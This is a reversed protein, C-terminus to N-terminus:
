FFSLQNSEPLAGFAGMQTLLEIASHNVKSCVSEIEDISTFDVGSQAAKYLEQAAADGIGNQAVFPARMFTEGEPLFREAHSKNFDIPLVTLGKSFFEECVELSYQMSEDIASLKEAEGKKKLLKIKRSVADPGQAMASLDLAKARISFYACYFALPKYYKFWAIRAAMMVYAAAHAKPFLYKIKKCSEIYWEPVKLTKMAAEQEESLGRGKRVKEMIDFADVDRMGRSMLYLMIDDRCGIVDEIAKGEALLDKANGLWVDTGHSFGSLRVLTSLKDPHTDTLMQRTFGTGFEPIALSTEGSAFLGLVNEDDLPIDRYNLGTLDSLMKVMSPDDHGLIDLKLLNDEMTHYNFHTTEMADSKDAPYHIPCFDTIEMDDPVIVLGGPHQGTTKKIGELAAAIRNEEAKPATIGRDEFYHKVYGYATKGALGSVTGAKYVNGAGFLEITHKHAEAQYEGSFNLDIDPVKAKGGSFGLFTEFPIDFGEKVYKAGCSCVADPMDAGCAYNEGAAFDVTKCEPCRYHAPLANVETIGALYAVFSSGVSGRSGVPYGNAESREVLLTASLYIVAYGRGVISELEDAVRKTIFEPPNEGYLLALRGFVRDNLRQECDPLKPVFLQKPLLTIDACMDAILNTNTVVVEYAKDEGLYAFENLCDETTRYYLPIERDVDSFKQSTLVRRFIEEEPNVFHVDGTACVPKGTIEGFEVIRRNFDRLDEITSAKKRKDDLMFMNNAIPQIEFYDYFESLRLFERDSRKDKVQTFLEGAECASGILLGERYELLLSKPIIPHKRFHEIHSKSILTYLNKLGERSKVLIIIHRPYSGRKELQSVSRAARTIRDTDGITVANHESQLRARLKEMLLSLTVADDSARHHNFGPLGLADALNALGYKQFDPYIVQSLTVTDIAPSTFELGLRKCAEILMGTDYDSNHAVLTKDGIFRLFAPIAEDEHPAALVMEDTIGTLAVIESPIPMGPNVFTEYKDVVKGDRILVAGIETIRDLKLDLGTAELDFAIYESLGRAAYTEENGAYTVVLRDDVDNIYYGEVGYIVKVGSGKAASAMDPFAHVVGHDTIAVAKHGWRKASEIVQRPECLADLASMKTHLHLEVRKQGDYKDQRETKDIREIIEPELVFDAYYKDNIYKGQVRLWDGVEIKDPLEGNHKIHITSTLDTLDFSTTTGRGTKWKREEFSIVEGEATVRGDDAGVSVLRMASGKIPREGLLLQGGRKKNVQKAPLPATVNIRAEKLGYEKAIFAEAMKWNVPNDCRLSINMVRKAEDVRIESVVASEDTVLCNPFVESFKREM